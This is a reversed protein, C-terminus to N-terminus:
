LMLQFHATFAEKRKEGRFFWHVGYKDALHGYSGFPVDRLDDLL